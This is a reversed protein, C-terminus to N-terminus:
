VRGRKQTGTDGEKGSWKSDKVGRLKSKRLTEFILIPILRHNTDSIPLMLYIMDAINSIGYLIANKTINSGINYFRYWIDFVEFDSIVNAVYIPVVSIEYRSNEGRIVLVVVKEEEKDERAKLSLLPYWRFEEEEEKEGRETHTKKM